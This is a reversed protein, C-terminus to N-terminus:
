YTIPSSLWNHKIRILVLVIWYCDLSFYTLAVTIFYLEIEHRPQKNTPISTFTCFKLMSSIQHVSSSKGLLFTLKGLHKELWLRAVKYSWRGYYKEFQGLLYYWANSSQPFFLFFVSHMPLYWKNPKGGYTL